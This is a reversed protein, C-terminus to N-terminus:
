LIVTMRQCHYTKPQELSKVITDALVDAVVHSRGVKVTCGYISSLTDKAYKMNQNLQKANHRKLLTFYYRTQGSVDTMKRKIHVKHGARELMKIAHQLQSPASNKYSTAKM